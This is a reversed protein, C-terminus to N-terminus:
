SSSPLLPLSSTVEEVVTNNDTDYDPYLPKGTFPQSAAAQPLYKQSQRFFGSAQEPTIAAVHHDIATILEDRSHFSEHAVNSKIANFAYEIPNLFPSYPSLYLHKHSYANALTTFVEAV